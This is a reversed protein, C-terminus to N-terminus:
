GELYISNFGLLTPSRSRPIVDILIFRGKRCHTCCTIDVGILRKIREITSEVQKTVM